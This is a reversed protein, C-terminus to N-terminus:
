IHILSLYAGSLVTGVGSIGGAGIRPRVVWFQSDANLFDSMDKEIEVGVIIANRQQNFRVSNVVGIDVNRYKVLNKEVSIGEATDFTIEIQVGRNQWNNYVMGLGIIIALIPLLWITSFRTKQREEPEAILLTDTM